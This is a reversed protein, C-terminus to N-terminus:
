SPQIERASKGHSFFVLVKGLVGFIWKNIMMSVVLDVIRWEETNGWHNNDNNYKVM